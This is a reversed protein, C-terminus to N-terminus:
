NDGINRGGVIAMANDAIFAKNHMRHNLRELSFLFELGHLNRNAFPNFLRIEINPHFDMRAFKFDTDKTTVHDILMRVRVGRDAARLLREALISGATDTEWIYYQVDITREALNALGARGRFGMEGTRILLIGSDGPYAVIEPQFLRGLETAQPDALATSVTRDEVEPITTACGVLLLCASLVLALFRLIGSGQALARHIDRM